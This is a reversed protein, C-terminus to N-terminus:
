GDAGYEKVIPRQQERVSAFPADVHIDEESPSAGRDAKDRSPVHTGEVAVEPREFVWRMMLALLCVMLAFPVLSAHGDLGLAMGLNPSLEGELLAPLSYQTLPREISSLPFLWGGLSQAWVMAVSTGILVAAAIKVASVSAAYQLSWAVPICLFPLMPVLHRPGISAGGWWVVYSANYLILTASNASVLLGLSREGSRWMLLLGPLALLLFPSLFFLGRYPSFTIGYLAHLSPLTLGLFGQAHVDAYNVTYSYGAPLPTGFAILNYGAMLLGWPVAAAVVRPLISRACFIRRQHLACAIILLCVMAMIYETIVAFGMLAGALWASPRKAGERVKRWLIYFAAFMASAALQHSFFQSSVPFAITALGYSLMVLLAVRPSVWRRVFLYLLLGATASPISVTVFTVFVVAMAHYYRSYGTGSGDTEPREALGSAVVLERFVVYVPLAIVSPGISKETYYHGGFYAKDRTNRHYDDIRVTGQDALAYVLNMRSTTNPNDVRPLFYGYCAILVLFGAAAYPSLRRKM